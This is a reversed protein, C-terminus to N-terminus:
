RRTGRMCSQRLSSFPDPQVLWALNSPMPSALRFLVEEVEEGGGARVGVAFVDGGQEVLEVAAAGGRVQGFQVAERGRDLGPPRLDQGEEGGSDGVSAGFGGVPDDFGDGAVGVAEAVGGVM